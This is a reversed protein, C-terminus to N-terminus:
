RLFPSASITVQVNASYNGAITQIGPPSPGAIGFLFLHCKGYTAETIDSGTIEQPLVIKDYARCVPFSFVSVGPPVMRSGNRAENETIERNNAYAFQLQVPLRADSQKDHICFAPLNATVTIEFSEPATITFIVANPDNITINKVQDDANGSFRGFELLSPWVSVVAKLDSNFRPPTVQLAKLVAPMIYVLLMLFYKIM